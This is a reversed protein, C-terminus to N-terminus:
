INLNVMFCVWQIKSWCRRCCSRHSHTIRKSTSQNMEPIELRVVKRLEMRSAGQAFTQQGTCAVVHYACVKGDYCRGCVHHVGDDGDAVALKSKGYHHVM